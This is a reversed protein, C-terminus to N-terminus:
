LNSFRLKRTSRNKTVRNSNRAGVGTNDFTPLSEWHTIDRFPRWQIIEM